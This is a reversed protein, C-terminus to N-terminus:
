TNVALRALKRKHSELGINMLIGVSISFLVISTGGFSIFPLTIGTTPVIGTVVAVNIFASILINFSLGFALLQGFKTLSKKAIILGIVFIIFYITLVVLAGMFGTEEGLISFIFDSYSEPLFLNSQRSEGIGIGAIGGSGLAIKSQMVQTGMKDADSFSQIYNLIRMRSHPLLMMIGGGVISLSALVSFLHKLRAGGIYLLTFTSFVIIISTSVNPQAMVLISVIFIWFLPYILGNKFDGIIKEKRTVLGALHIILVIKVIESPQFKIIGFDIWRVAGKAEFGIILTLVLLFIFGLLVM